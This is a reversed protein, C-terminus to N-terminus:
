HSIAQYLVGNTECWNRVYDTSGYVTLGTGSHFAAYGLHTISAPLTVSKLSTVVHNAKNFANDGISTVGEPIVINVLSDTGCFADNGITKLGVNFNITHLKDCWAFAWDAVHEVSSPITLTELIQCTNFANKSIVTVPKGSLSSPITVSADSGKYWTIEVHDDMERWEYEDNSHEIDLSVFDFGNDKCWKEVNGSGPAYITLKSKNAQLDDAVDDAFQVNANNFTISTLQTCQTFARECVWTVSNPVVISKLSSGSFLDPQLSQVTYSIQTKKDELCAPVEIYDKNANYAEEYKVLEASTYGWKRWTFPIENTPGVQEGNPADGGGESNGNDDDGLDPLPDPPTPIAAEEDARLVFPINNKVCYAHAVTNEYVYATIKTKDCHLFLNEGIKEISSPFYVSKLKECGSFVQDGLTQVGNEITVETLNKCDHFAMSSVTKVTGPITLTTLAKNWGFANEGISTVRAPITLSELAYCEFFAGDGISSVSDPINCSTMYKCGNFMWGDISSLTEPLQVTRIYEMGSFANGSLATVPKGNITDPVVVDPATSMYKGIEIHNDFEYWKFPIEATPGYGGTTPISPLSPNAPPTVEEIVNGNKDVLQYPIGNAKCYDYGVSNQYVTAQLSYCNAFADKGISTVSKPITISELRYCRDFAHAGISKLGEHLEVTVLSQCDSFASHEIKLVNSPVSISPLRYCQSFTGENITNIGTPINISTLHTCAAFAERGINNVTDPIYVSTIAVDSMFATPEIEWLGEPLTVSQLHESFSFANSGIVRVPKGDLYAPVVPNLSQNAYKLEYREIQVYDNMVFYKYYDKEPPNEPVIPAPVPNPKVSAGGVLTYPIGYKECFTQADTSSYVLVNRCDNLAGEALWTVSKPLTITAPVECFADSGIHTLGNPLTLTQLKTCEKFVDNGLYTLTSPLSVSILNDCGVFVGSELKTVGEGIVATTLSKCLAFCDSGVRSISGPITISKLNQCDIFVGYDMRRLTSPLQVSTVVDLHEMNAFANVGLVEVPLGEIEAPVVVEADTGIYKTIHIYDGMNWWTFPWNTTQYGEDKGWSEAPSGPVVILYVENKKDSFAQPNIQIIEVSEPFEVYTLNECGAFMEEPVITMGDPIKVVTLNNCGKFMNKMHEVDSADLNTATFVKLSSFNGLLEECDKPLKITGESLIYVHYKGDDSPVYYAVVNGKDDAYATSFLMPLLGTNGNQEEVTSSDMAAVVHSYESLRGFTVGSVAKQYDQGNPLTTLVRKLGAATVSTFSEGTEMGTFPHNKLDVKGFGSNLAQEASTFGAAQVGQAVVLISYKEGLAAVDENTASSDLLVQRLSEETNQGPLLKQNYTATAVVYREGNQELTGDIFAWNWDQDNYNLHIKEQFFDKEGTVEFAYWLRVYADTNGTNTISVIKDVTNHVTTPWFTTENGTIAEEPYVGPILPKDDHFIDLGNETREQEILDIEVRGLTMVNVDGDSDTLYAITSGVSVVLALMVLLMKWLTLKKM